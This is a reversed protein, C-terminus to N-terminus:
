DGNAICIEKENHSEDYMVNPIVIVFKLLVFKLEASIELISSMETTVEM